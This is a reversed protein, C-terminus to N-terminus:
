MTSGSSNPMLLTAQAMVWAITGSLLWMAPFQHNWVNIVSGLGSGSHSMNHPLDPPLTWAGYHEPAVWPELPCVRPLQPILSLARENGRLWKELRQLVLLAPAESNPFVGSFLSSAARLHVCVPSVMQIRLLMTSLPCSMEPTLLCEPSLCGCPPPPLFLKQARSSLCLCLPTMRPADHACRVATCEAILDSGPDISLM